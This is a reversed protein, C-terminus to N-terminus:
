GAEVELVMHRQLNKLGEGHTNGEALEQAAADFLPDPYPYELVLQIGQVVKAPTPNNLTTTKGSAATLTITQANM